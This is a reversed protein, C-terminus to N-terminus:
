FDLGSFSDRHVEKYLENCLSVAISVLHAFRCRIMQIDLVVAELLYHIFETHIENCKNVHFLHHVLIHLVIPVGTSCVCRMRM